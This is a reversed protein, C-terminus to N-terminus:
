LSILATDKFAKGRKILALGGSFKSEDIIENDIRNFNISISGDKLFKRAETKSEALGVSVLIDIVSSNLSVREFNIEKKLQDIENNSLDSLAFKGTLVESIKVAVDAKDQGHVIKTVQYALEKQGNRIAPNANHRAVLEDIQEKSLFTYAKLLYDLDEDGSNVFFQYLKTPSTKDEDLWVAGTESKGFKIGTSRNIVLPITLANVEANEKKRILSVGSLLNGWQDSGGIQLNVGHNKYLHWFDYGQILTYSFETFSIGDGSQDIRTQVFDRNVLDSIAFYKGTERLFDMLKIDKFWDYNNVFTIPHGSVNKSFISEVQNKISQTNHNIEEASKLERETLKGSPDGVLSTAGGILMFVKHGAAVFRMLLMLIALNGITLSDATGDVGLYLSRPEDLYSVNEFTKDKISGRWVLEESFKM